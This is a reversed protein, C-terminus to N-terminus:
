GLLYHLLVPSGTIGFAALMAMWAGATWAAEVRRMPRQLAEIKPMQMASQLGIVLIFILFIHGTLALGLGALASMALTMNHAAKPAFSYVVRRLVHGGDLPWIPLLNFFNLAATLMTFLYAYHGGAPWVPTLLLEALHGLALLALCIGPGMLSIYADKAQSSPLRDSIAVGGLLPILRLRADTHGAVRFAAVHGFEHVLISLILLLGIPVGFFYMAAAISLTGVLASSPTLNPTVQGAPLRWGGRLVAYTLWLVLVALGCAAAQGATM